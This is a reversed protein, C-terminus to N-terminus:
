SVSDTRVPPGASRIQTSQCHIPGSAAHMTTRTHSDSCSRTSQPWVIICACQRNVLASPSTFHMHSGGYMHRVACAQSSCISGLSDLRSAPCPAPRSTHCQWSHRVNPVQPHILPLLCCGTPATPAHLHMYTHLLAPAAFDGTSRAALPYARQQNCAPRSAPELRFYLHRVYSTCTVGTASCRHM